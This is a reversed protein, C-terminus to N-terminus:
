NFSWINKLSEHNYSVIDSKINKSTEKITKHKYFICKFNHVQFICFWSYFLSVQFISSKFYITKHIKRSPQPNSWYKELVTSMFSYWVELLILKSYTANLNITFRLLRFHSSCQLHWFQLFVVILKVVIRTFSPYTLQKTECGFRAEEWYIRVGKYKLLFGM